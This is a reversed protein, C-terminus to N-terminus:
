WFEFTVKFGPQVVQSVIGALHPSITGPLRAVNLAQGVNCVCAVFRNLLQGLFILSKFSGHNFPRLVGGVMGFARHVRMLVVSM